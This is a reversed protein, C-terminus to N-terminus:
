INPSESTHPLTTCTRYSRGKGHTVELIKEAEDMFNRAEFPESMYYSLKGLKCYLLGTNIDYEPYFKKYPELLIKGIELCSEWDQEPINGKQFRM